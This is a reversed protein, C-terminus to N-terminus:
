VGDFTEDDEPILVPPAEPPSDGITATIGDGIYTARDLFEVYYTLRVTYDLQLADSTGGAVGSLRRVGVHYFWQLAPNTTVVCATDDLQNIPRTFIKATTMYHKLRAKSKSGNLGTLMGYRIFTSPISMLEATELGGFQQPTDENQGPASMVFFFAQPNTYNSGYVNIKCALVRYRNYFKKWIDFGEPQGGGTSYEPDYLSNARFIKSALGNQNSAINLMGTYTYRLKIVARDAIIPARTKIKSIRIHGLRSHRRFRRGAM